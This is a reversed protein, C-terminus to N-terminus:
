LPRHAAAGAAARAARLAQGAYARAAERLIRGNARWLLVSVDELLYEYQKTEPLQTVRSMRRALEKLFGEADASLVGNCSVAFPVYEAGLHAVAEAAGARKDTAAVTAAVPANMSGAEVARQSWASVITADVVATVSTGFVSTGRATSTWRAVTIDSPRPIEAGARATRYTLALKAEAAAVAAESDRLGMFDAIGQITQEKAAACGGSVAKGFLGDRLAAHRQTKKGSRALESRGTPDARVGGQGVVGPLNAEPIATTSLYHCLNRDFDPQHFKSVTPARLWGTVVPGGSALERAHPVSEPPLGALWEAQRARHIQDATQAAGGTPVRPSQLEHGLVESLKALQSATWEKHREVSEARWAECLVAVAPLGCGGMRLPLTAQMAASPPLEARLLEALAKLTAQDAKEFLRREAQGLVRAMYGMRAGSGMCDRLLTYRLRPDRVYQLNEIDKLVRDLVSRAYEAGGEFCLPVGLFKRPNVNQDGLRLGVQALENAYIRRFAARSESGGVAVCDDLFARAWVEGGAARTRALAAELVGWLVLSFLLPMLPDGQAGGRWAELLSAGTPGGAVHLFTPEGLSSVAYRLLFPARRAVARIIANRDVENFANTLDLAEVDVGLESLHYVLAGLREAGGPVGVGQQGSRELGEVVAAMRPDQLAVKSTLRRLLSLLGVPRWTGPKNAKALLVLRVERWFDPGGGKLGTCVLDYIVRSALTKAEEAGDWEGKLKRIGKLWEAHLGGLDAATEDPLAMVQKWVVEEDPEFPADSTEQRAAGSTGRARMEEAERNADEVAAARGAAEAQRVDVRAMPDPHLSRAVEMARAGTLRETPRLQQAAKKKCGSRLLIAACRNGAEDMVRDYIVTDTGDQVVRTRKGRHRRSSKPWEEIAEKMLDVVEGRRFRQLRSRIEVRTTDARRAVRFLAHYM